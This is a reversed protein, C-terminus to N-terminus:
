RASVRSGLLGAADAMRECRAGERVADTARRPRLADGILLPRVGGAALREALPTESGGGVWAVLLDAAVPVRVEGFVGALTLRGDTAATPVAREVVDVRLEALRRIM